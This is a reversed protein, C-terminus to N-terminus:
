SSLGRPMATETTLGPGTFVANLRLKACVEGFDGSVIIMVGSDTERLTIVIMSFLRKSIIVGRENANIQATLRKM